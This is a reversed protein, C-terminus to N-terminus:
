KEYYVAFGFNKQITSGYIGQCRKCCFYKNISNPCQNKNSAKKTHSKASVKFINGCIFCVEETDYYKRQEEGHHHAHDYKSLLQLNEIVDHTKDGDIHHVVEDSTLKRGLHQEMLYRAYSISHQKGDTGKYILCKRGETNIYESYKGISNM